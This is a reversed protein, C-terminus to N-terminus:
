VDGDETEEMAQDPKACLGLDICDCPLKEVGGGLAAPQAVKSLGLGGPRWDSM